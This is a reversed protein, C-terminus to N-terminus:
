PTSAMVIVYMDRGPFKEMMSKVEGVKRLYRELNTATTGEDERGGLYRGYRERTARRTGEGRM